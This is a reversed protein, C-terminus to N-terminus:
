KKNFYYNAIVMVDWTRPTIDRSIFVWQTTNANSMELVRTSRAYGIRRAGHNM